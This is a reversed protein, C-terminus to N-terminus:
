EKVQNGKGKRSKLIHYSFYSLLLILTIVTITSGVVFSRPLYYLKIEKQGDIRVASIVGDAREIGAEKGDIVAHWGPYLSFTESYVLFGKFEKDLSIKRTDYDVMKNKDDAIAIFNGKLQEEIGYRLGCYKALNTSAEAM